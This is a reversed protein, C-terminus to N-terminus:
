STEIESDNLDWVRGNYSVQAIQKSGSFIQGGVWNGGGLNWNEIYSRCKKSADKLDRIKLILTPAPRDTIKQGPFDPNGCSSLKITLIEKKM